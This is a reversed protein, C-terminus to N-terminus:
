RKVARIIRECEDILLQCSVTEGNLLCQKGKHSDPSIYVGTNMSPGVTRFAFPNADKAQWWRDATEKGAHYSVACGMGMSLGVLVAIWKWLM